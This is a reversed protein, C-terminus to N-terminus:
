HLLPVSLYFIMFVLKFCIHSHHRHCHHHAYGGPCIIIKLSTLTTIICTPEYFNPSAHHCDSGAPVSLSCLQLVSHTEKSHNANFYSHNTCIIPLYACTAGFWEQNPQFQVPYIIKPRLYNAYRVIHHVWGYIHIIPYQLIHNLPYQLIHNLPYQLIHNSPILRPICPRHEHRAWLVLCSYFTPIQAVQAAQAVQAVKGGGGGSWKLIQAVQACLRCKSVKLNSGNSWRLYELANM